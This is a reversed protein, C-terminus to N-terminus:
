LLPEAPASFCLSHHAPLALFCVLMVHLCPQPLLQGSITHVEQKGTGDEEAQATPQAPAISQSGALPTSAHLVSRLSM